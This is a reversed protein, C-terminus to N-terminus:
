SAWTPGDPTRRLLVLAIDDERRDALPGTTHHSAPGHVARVVSDALAELDDSPGAELVDCLRRCGTDLDHGGTEILGDTCMLLVEGPELVLRTTPYDTDPAIGLPLGGSTAARTWCSRRV